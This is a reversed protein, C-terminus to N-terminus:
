LVNLTFGERETDTKVIILRLQMVLQCLLAYHSFLVTTEPFLMSLFQVDKLLCLSQYLLKMEKKFYHVFDIYPFNHIPLYNKELNSQILIV